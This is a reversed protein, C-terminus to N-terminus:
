NTGGIILSKDRNVENGDSSISDSFFRGNAEIEEFRQDKGVKGSRAPRICLKKVPM